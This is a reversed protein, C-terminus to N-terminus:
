FFFFMKCTATINLGKNSYSVKINHLSTLMKLQLGPATDWKKVFHLTDWTGNELLTFTYQRILLTWFCALQIEQATTFLFLLLMHQHEPSLSTAQEPDSADLQSSVICHSTALPSCCTDFLKNYISYKFFYFFTWNKSSM